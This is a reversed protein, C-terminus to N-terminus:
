KHSKTEHSDDAVFIMTSTIEKNTTPDILYRDWVLLKEDNKGVKNYFTHETFGGPGLAPHPDCVVRIM